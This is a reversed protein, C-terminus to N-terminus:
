HSHRGAIASARGRLHGDSLQAPQAGARQARQAIIVLFDIHQVIHTRECAWMHSGPAVPGAQMTPMSGNCAAADAQQWADGGHLRGIAPKNIHLCPPAKCPSCPCSSPAQSPWCRLVGAPADSAAGNHVGLASGNRWGCTISYAWSRPLLWPMMLIVVPPMFRAGVARGMAISFSVGSDATMLPLACTRTGALAGPPQRGILRKPGGLGPPSCQVM